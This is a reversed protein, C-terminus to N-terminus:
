NGRENDNTGRPDVQPDRAPPPTPEIAPAPNSPSPGISQTAALIRDLPSGGDPEEGPALDGDRGLVEVRIYEAFGPATFSLRGYSTDEILGKDLLSSRVFSLSETRVNLAAAIDRRRIDTEGLLAMASLMRMEADSADNWRGRFFDRQTSAFEEEAQQVHEATLTAGAAPNGAARWTEDGILQIFYPYNRGFTLARTAAEPTWTVGLRNAPGSLAAAAAGDDLNRLHKYQFREAFSVASRIVDPSHSLGAAFTTAPLDADESQMHQWAYALAKLGDADAAQIEDVFLALGVAGDNQAEKTAARVLTQLARSAGRRAAAVAVPGTTKLSLPGVAITLNKAAAAIQARATDQWRHSLETFEASLVELFPVDDGATVFVTAFGQQEAAHQAARLLSTKGVGRPGVDVRIRGNFKRFTSVYSLRENIAEGQTARGPLGFDHDAVTGPTYPSPQPATM